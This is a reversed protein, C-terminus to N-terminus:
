TLQPKSPQRNLMLFLTVRLHSFHNKLAAHVLGADILDNV